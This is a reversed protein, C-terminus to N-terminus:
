NEDYAKQQLYDLLSDYALKLQVYIWDDSRKFQTKEKSNFSDENQEYVRDYNAALQIYQESDDQFRDSTIEKLRKYASVINRYTWTDQREYREAEDDTFLSRNNTLFDDYQKSVIDYEKSGKEPMTQVKKEVAKPDPKKSGNEPKKQSKNPTSQKSTKSDPSEQKSLFNDPDLEDTPINFFKLMFYREAYTLASGFGKEEGNCGTAAWKIIDKEDPNDVNIWTMIMELTYLWEKKVGNRTEVEIQEKQIDIVESKLLVGVENLGQNIHYLVTSGSTYTYGYGKADKKLYPIRRKVELLKQFLNKPKEPPDPSKAVAKKTAPKEQNKEKKEM